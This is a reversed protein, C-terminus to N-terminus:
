LSPVSTKGAHVHNRLNLLIVLLDRKRGALKLHVCKTGAALAALVHVLDLGGNADRVQRRPQNHGRLALTGLMLIAGRRHLKQERADVGLAHVRLLSFHLPEVTVFAANGPAVLNAAVDELRIPHDFVQARAYRGAVHLRHHVAVQILEDVAPQAGATGDLPHLPDPIVFLLVMRSVMTSSFFRSTARSGCRESETASKFAASSARPSRRSKTPASRFGFLSETAKIASTLFAEGE